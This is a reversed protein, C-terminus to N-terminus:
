YFTRFQTINQLIVQGKGTMLLCLSAQSGAPSSRGVWQLKARKRIESGGKGSSPRGFTVQDPSNKEGNRKWIITQPFRLCDDWCLLPPRNDGKIGGFETSLM